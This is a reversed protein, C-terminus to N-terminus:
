RVVLGEFFVARAGYEHAKEMIAVADPAHGSPDFGDVAVLGDVTPLDNNEALAFLWDANSGPRETDDLTM